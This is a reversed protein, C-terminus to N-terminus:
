IRGYKRMLADINEAMRPAVDATLSRFINRTCVFLVRRM